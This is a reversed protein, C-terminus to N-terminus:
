SGHVVQSLSQFVGLHVTLLWVTLGSALFSLLMVNEYLPVVVEAACSYKSYTTQKSHIQLYTLLYTIM